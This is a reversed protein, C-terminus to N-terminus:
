SRPPYAGQHPPPTELVGHPDSLGGSDRWLQGSPLPQRAKTVNGLVNAVVLGVATGLLGEIFQLVLTLDTLPAAVNLAMGAVAAAAPVLLAALFQAPVGWRERMSSAVTFGMVVSFMLWPFHVPLVRAYEDVPGSQHDPALAARALLALAAVLGAAFWGSLVARM